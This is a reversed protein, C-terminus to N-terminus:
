GDGSMVLSDREQPTHPCSIHLLIRIPTRFQLIRTWKHTISGGRSLYCYDADEADRNAHYENQDDRQVDVHALTTVRFTITQWDSRGYFVLILIRYNSGKQAMNGRKRGGGEEGRGWEKGGEEGEFGM